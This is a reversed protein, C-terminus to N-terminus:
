AISCKTVVVTLWSRLRSDGRTATTPASTTYTKSPTGKVRRNGSPLSGPWLAFCMLFRRGCISGANGVNKELICSFSSICNFNYEKCRDFFFFFFNLVILTCYKGELKWTTMKFNMPAGLKSWIIRVLYIFIKKLHIFLSADKNYIEEIVRLTIIPNEM